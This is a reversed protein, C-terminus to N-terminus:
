RKENVSDGKKLDLQSERGEMRRGEEIVPTHGRGMGEDHTLESTEDKRGKREESM